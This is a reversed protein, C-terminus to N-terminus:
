NKSYTTKYRATLNQNLCVSEVTLSEACRETSEWKQKKKKKSLTFNSIIMELM